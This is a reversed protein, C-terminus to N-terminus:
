PSWPRGANSLFMASNIVPVSCVTFVNTSRCEGVAVAIVTHRLDIHQNIQRETRDAGARVVLQLEHEVHHHLERIPNSPLRSGNEFLVALAGKSYLVDRCPTFMEGTCHTSPSYKCPSHLLPWPQLGLLLGDRGGGAGGWM